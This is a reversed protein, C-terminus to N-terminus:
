VRKEMEKGIAKALLELPGGRLNDLISARATNTKKKKGWSDDKRVGGTM